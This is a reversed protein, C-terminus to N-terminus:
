FGTWTTAARRMGDKLDTWLRIAWRCRCLGAGGTPLRHKLALDALRSRETFFLGGSAVVLAQARAKAIGAFAGELEQIGSVGFSRFDLGLTKAGAEMERVSAEAAPSAKDWLIAALRLSPIAERLLELRKGTLDSSLSTNGTLNKDPRAFSTVLRLAVPDGALNAFVILDDGSCPDGRGRYHDRKAKCSGGCARCAATKGEAWRQEFVVNKGEIYGLDRL